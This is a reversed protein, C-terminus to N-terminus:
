LVARRVLLAFHDALAHVRLWVLPDVPIADHLSDGVPASLPGHLQPAEHLLGVGGLEVGLRQVALNLQQQLALVRVGGHRGSRLGLRRLLLVAHLDLLLVAHLAVEELRCRGELARPWAPTELHAQPAETVVAVRLLVDLLLLLLLLLLLVFRCLLIGALRFVALSFRLGVAGRLRVALRPLLALGVAALRILFGVFLGLLCVFLRLPLLPLICVIRLDAAGTTFALDASLSCLCIQQYAM